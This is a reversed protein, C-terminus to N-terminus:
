LWSGIVLLTIHDSYPTVTVDVSKESELDLKVIIAKNCIEDILVRVSSMIGDRVYEKYGPDTDVRSFSWEEVLVTELVTM